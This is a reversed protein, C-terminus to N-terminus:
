TSLLLNDMTHTQTNLTSLLLMLLYMFQSTILHSLDVVNNEM